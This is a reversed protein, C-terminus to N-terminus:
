IYTKTRPSQQNNIAEHHNQHIDYVLTKAFMRRINQLGWRCCCTASFRQNGLVDESLKVLCRTVPRRPWSKVSFIGTSHSLFFCLFQIEGTPGESSLTGLWLIRQMEPETGEFFRGFPWWRRNTIQWFVRPKPCSICPFAICNAVWLDDDSFCCSKLTEFHKAHFMLHNFPIMYTGVVQLFFFSVLLDGFKWSCCRDLWKGLSGFITAKKRVSFEWSWLPLILISSNLQPM